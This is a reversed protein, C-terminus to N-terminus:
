TRPIQRATTTRKKRRWRWADSVLSRKMWRTTVCRGPASEKGWRRASTSRWTSSLFTPFTPRVRTRPSVGLLMEMAESQRNVFALSFGVTMSFRDQLELPRGTVDREYPRGCSWTESREIVITQVRPEGPEQLMNPSLPARRNVKGKM